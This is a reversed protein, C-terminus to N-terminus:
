PLKAPMGLTEIRRGTWSDVTLFNVTFRGGPAVQIREVRTLEAGQIEWRARLTYPSNHGSALPPTMFRRYSGGQSTKSDDFWLEAEAPIKVIILAAGSPLPSEEETVTPGNPLPGTPFAPLLKRRDFPVGPGDMWPYTGPGPGPYYGYGPKFGPSGPYNAQGTDVTDYPAAGISFVPHGWKSMLQAPAPQRAAVLVVLALLASARRITTTARMFTAEGSLNSVRGQDIHRIGRRVAPTLDRRQPRGVPM